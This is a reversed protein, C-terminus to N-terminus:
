KVHERKGIIFDKVHEFVFRVDEPKSIELTFLDDYMDEKCVKGCGVIDHLHHMITEENSTIRLRPNSEFIDIQGHGYVQYESATM